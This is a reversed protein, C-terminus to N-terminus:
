RTLIKSVTELTFEATLERALRMGRVIQDDEFVSLQKAPRLHRRIAVALQEKNRLDAGRESLYYGIIQLDRRPADELKKIEAPLDFDGQPLPSDIIELERNIM